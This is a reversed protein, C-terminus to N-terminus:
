TKYNHFHVDRMELIIFACFTCFWLRHIRKNTLNHLQSLSIACWAANPTLRSTLWASLASCLLSDDHADLTIFFFNNCLFRDADSQSFLHTLRRSAFFITLLSPKASTIHPAATAPPKHSRAPDLAAEDPSFGGGAECLCHERRLCFWHFLWDFGCCIRCRKEARSNWNVSLLFSPHAARLPCFM